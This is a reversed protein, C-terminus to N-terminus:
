YNWGVLWHAYRCLSACQLYQVFVCFAVAISSNMLMLMVKYFLYYFGTLSVIGIVRTYDQTHRLIEVTPFQSVFWCRDSGGNPFLLFCWDKGGCLSTACWWAGIEDIQCFCFCVSDGGVGLAHGLLVLWPVCCFSGWFNYRVCVGVVVANGIM